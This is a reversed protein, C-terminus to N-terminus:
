WSDNATWSCELSAAEKFIRGQQNDSVQMKQLHAVLRKTIVGQGIYLLTSQTADRIRYLGDKTANSEPAWQPLKANLPAWPSWAHGCWNANQLNDELQGAPALSSEHSSEREATLGGRYRKNAKVLKADNSSSMRYGEPMRGFSMNPSRGQEQRYLAIALAELGKRWRSGEPTAGEVITVSIEFVCASCHRLAWLAPAATHPARYPMEDALIGTLMGLRRRLSSSTQGIYDLDEHGTRRIRYIGPMAPISGNRWCNDWNQWLSWNYVKSLQLM